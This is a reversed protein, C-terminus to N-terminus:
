VYVDIVSYQLLKGQPYYTSINIWVPTGVEMYSVRMIANNSAVCNGILSGSQLM